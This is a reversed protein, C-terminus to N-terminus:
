RFIHKRVHIIYFQNFPILYSFDDFILSLSRNLVCDSFKYKKLCIKKLGDMYWTSHDFRFNINGSSSPHDVASILDRFKRLPCEYSKSFRHELIIRFLHLSFSFQKKSFFNLCVFM